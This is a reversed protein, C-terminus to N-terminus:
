RPFAFPDPPLQKMGRDQLVKELAVRTFLKENGKSMEKNVVAAEKIIDNILNQSALAILNGIKPDAFTVGAKAFIRNLIPEPIM